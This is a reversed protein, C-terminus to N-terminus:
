PKIFKTQGFNEQKASLTDKLKEAFKTDGAELKDVGKKSPEASKAVAATPRSAHKAPRKKAALAAKIAAKKAALEASYIDDEDDSDTSDATSDESDESDESTEQEEESGEEEDSSELAAAAKAAKAAKRGAIKKARLEAAALQQQKKKSLVPGADETTDERDETDEKTTEDLAQVEGLGAATAAKPERVEVPLPPLLRHVEPDRLAVQAASTKAQKKNAQPEGSHSKHGSPVKLEVTGVFEGMDSEEFAYTIHDCLSTARTALQVLTNLSDVANAYKRAAAARHAVTVPQVHTPEEADQADKEKDEDSLEEAEDEEAQQTAQLPV